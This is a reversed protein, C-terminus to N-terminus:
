PRITEPLSRMFARVSAIQSNDSIFEFASVSVARAPSGRSAGLGAHIVPCEDTLGVLTAWAPMDLCMIVDLADRAQWPAGARWHTTMEIRLDDLGAQIERDDHRLDALVGILREATDLCVDEHLVTWGVQFVSVLDHGVLFDEPLQHRAWNELGLNCVAVAADATEQATFPRAQISCGAMITNALFALEQNRLSFAAQDHDGAFRMHAEIRARRSPQSQGGDLLARPPQVLIGADLLVDALVTVPDAADPSPTWEIARSYARAIPNGQPPTDRGPRARRSMQLFARAQAPSVYGQQERRQERDFALDFMVQEDVPLLNDLGDTEPKSNSLRRCGGMLRHFYGPHELALSTLVTVIADWASSTRAVVQYGGIDCSVGDRQVVGAAPDFVRVHRAFGATALDVEVEALKQAAATAGSEMMVELWLGFRDADFQEDLGAHAPRWLDLDFVAALQGPTALALLEGCEELGCHQIVRHLMEPPLRSVLRALHPTELIRALLPPPDSSPKSM